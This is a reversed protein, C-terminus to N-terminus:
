NLIYQTCKAVHRNLMGEEDVSEDDDDDDNNEQEDEDDSPQPVRAKGKGKSLAIPTTIPIAPIVPATSTKPVTPRPINKVVQVEEEDSEDDDDSDEEEEEEEDDSPIFRRGPKGTPNNAKLFLNIILM